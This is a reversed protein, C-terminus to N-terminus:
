ATDTEAVLWTANTTFLGSAFAPSRLSAPEIGLNPLDGPSPFPLESWYEQRSIGMSLPAQPAATWPTVYPGACSFLSLLCAHVRGSVLPAHKCVHTKWVCTKTNGTAQLAHM